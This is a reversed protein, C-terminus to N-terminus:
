PAGVAPAPDAPAPPSDEEEVEVHVEPRVETFVVERCLEAHSLSREGDVDRSELVVMQPQYGGGKFYVTHPEDVGLEVEQPSGELQRGDVFVQVQSPVCELSVSQTTACGAVLTLALLLRAADRPAGEM